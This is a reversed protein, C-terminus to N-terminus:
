CTKCGLLCDSMGLKHHCCVGVVELYHGDLGGGLFVAAQLGGPEVEGAGSLLLHEAVYPRPGLAALIRNSATAHPLLNRIVPPQWPLSCHIINM